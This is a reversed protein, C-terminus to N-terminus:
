DIDMLFCFPYSFEKPYKINETSIFACNNLAASGRTQVYETGMAWLGRGPPLFKFNFILDYMRQASLQAKMAAWPLGNKDCHVRQALYLGEIVRQVTQWWQENKGDPLTRSYTRAFVVWGLGDFGWPPKIHKYKELFGETLKM